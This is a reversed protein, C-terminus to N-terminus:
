RVIFNGRPKKSPASVAPNIPHVQKDVSSQHNIILCLSWLVNDGNVKM